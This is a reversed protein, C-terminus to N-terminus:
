KSNFDILNKQQDSKPKPKPPLEPPKQVVNRKPVEPPQRPPSSSERLKQYKIKKGFM